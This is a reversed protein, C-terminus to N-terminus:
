EKNIRRWVETEADSLKKGAAQLFGWVGGGEDGGSQAGDHGYGGGGGGTRNPNGYNDYRAGYDSPDTRQQYGPPHSLDPDQQGPGPGGGYYASSARQQYGPPHSLDPDQQGPGPGGYYASSARPQYTPPYAINSPGPGPGPMTGRQAYPTAPPPISMQPPQTIGPFPPQQQSSSSSSARPPPPLNGTARATPLHPVAGPQPPPPGYNATNTTRTPTPYAPVYEPLGQSKPATQPAESGNAGDDPSATKPTVGDAKAATIPADTYIKIPPM